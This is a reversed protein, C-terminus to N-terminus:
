GAMLTNIQDEAEIAAKLADESGFAKVLEEVGVVEVAEMIPVKKNWFTNVYTKMKKNGQADYSVQGDSGKEEKTTEKTHLEIIVQNAFACPENTPIGDMSVGFLSKLLELINGLGDDSALQAKTYEPTWGLCCALAQVNKSMESELFKGGHFFAIEVEEGKRVGTYSPSAPAANEGDCIPHVCVFSFSTLKSNSTDTMKYQGNKLLYWATGLPPKKSRNGVKAKQLASRIQALRNGGPQVTPTAAAPSAPATQKKAAKAAIMEQLTPM